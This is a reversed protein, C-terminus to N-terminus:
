EKTEDNPRATDALVALLMRYMGTLAVALGIGLGILTFVPSADLRDDLWVGGYTFAAISFAIYWGIGLLRLVTRMGREGM